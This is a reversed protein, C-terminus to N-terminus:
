VLIGTSSITTIPYKSRRAGEAVGSLEQGHLVGCCCADCNCTGVFQPTDAGMTFGYFALHVHGMQELEYLLKNAKERELVTEGLPTQPPLGVFGCRKMPYKCDFHGLAEQEKKCVCPIVLFREHRKFHANIDLHPEMAAMLEPKLSGRVPVVGLV